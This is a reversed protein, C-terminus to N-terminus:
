TRKVTGDTKLELGDPDTEEVPMEPICKPFTGVDTWVPGTNEIVWNSFRRRFAPTLISKEKGLPPLSPKRKFHKKLSKYVKTVDGLDSRCALRTQSFKKGRKKEVQRLVFCGSLCSSVRVMGFALKKNHNLQFISEVHSWFWILYIYLDIICKTIFVSVIKYESCNM